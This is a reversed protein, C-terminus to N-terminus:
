RQLRKFSDKAKDWRLASTSLEQLSVFGFTVDSRLYKLFFMELWLYEKIKKM